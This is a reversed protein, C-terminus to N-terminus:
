KACLRADRVSNDGVPTPPEVLEITILLEGAKETAALSLQYPGIRIVAQESLSIDRRRIQAGDVRVRHDNNAEIRVKTPSVQILTAHHLGVRLDGM